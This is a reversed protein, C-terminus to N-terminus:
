VIEEFRIKGSSIEVCSAIFADAQGIRVEVLLIINETFDSRVVQVQYKRMLGQVANYHSFDISLCFRRHFFVERCGSLSLVDAAARSYARALGGTGLKTGGFFRTVVVLVETLDHGVIVDYIPRGATGSPEGDDSYKFVREEGSGLCFAFCHHSAAHERKKVAHLYQNSEEVSRVLFSEAIFRSGKVKSESRAEREITRYSEHM